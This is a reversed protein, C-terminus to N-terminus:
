AAHVIPNDAVPQKWGGRQGDYAATIFCMLADKNIQDKHAAAVGGRMALDEVTEAEIRDLLDEMTFRSDPSDWIDILDRAISSVIEKTTLQPATEVPEGYQSRDEEYAIEGDRKEIRCKGDDKIYIRCMEDGDDPCIWICWQGTTQRELVVCPLKGCPNVPPLAGMLIRLGDEHQITFHAPPDAVYDEHEESNANPFDYSRHTSGYQLTRKAIDRYPDALANIIETLKHPLDAVSQKREEDPVNAMEDIKIAELIALALTRTSEYAAHLASKGRTQCDTCIPHCPGVTHVQCRPCHHADCTDDKCRVDKITTESM